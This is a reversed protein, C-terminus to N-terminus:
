SFKTKLPSKYLFICRAANLLCHTRNLRRATSCKKVNMIVDLALYVAEMIENGNQDWNIESVLARARPATGPHASILVSQLHQTLKARHVYQAEIQILKQLM